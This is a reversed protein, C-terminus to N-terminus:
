GTSDSSKGHVTIAAPPSSTKGLVLALLPLGAGSGVIAIAISRVRAGLRLPGEAHAIVLRATLDALKTRAVTSQYADCEREMPRTDPAASRTPRIGSSSRAAAASASWWPCRRWSRRWAPKPDMAATSQPFRRLM